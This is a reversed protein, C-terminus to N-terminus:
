VVSKRDGCVEMLRWPRTVKRRIAEALIRAPVGDRFEDVFKM